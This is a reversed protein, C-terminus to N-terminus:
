QSSDLKAREADTWDCLIKIDEDTLKANWHIWLYSPLPMEKSQVQQCVEGLKKRKKATEYTNWISFNLHRRGDDIHDKLFWASPQIKSYWPYVTENTHCDNCARTLIKQVNEPVQTTSELTEARTVPPNTFDPRIFQIAVFCTFLLMVIIQLIRKLM